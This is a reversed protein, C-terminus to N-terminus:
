CFRTLVDMHHLLAERDNTPWAAVAAAEPRAHALMYVCILTQLLLSFEAKGVPVSQLLHTGCAYPTTWIWYPTLSTPWGQSAIYVISM